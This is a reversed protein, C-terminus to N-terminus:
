HGKKLRRPWELGLRSKPGRHGKLLELWELSLREPSGHGERLRRLWELSPLLEPGLHGKLWELGKRSLREPGEHSRGGVGQLSCHRSRLGLEGRM